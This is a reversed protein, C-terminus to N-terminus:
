KALSNLIHTQWKSTHLHAKNAANSQLKKAFSMTPSNRIQFPTRQSSSGALALSFGLTAFASCFDTLLPPPAQLAKMWVCIFPCFNEGCAM